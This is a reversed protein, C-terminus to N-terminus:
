DFYHIPALVNNRVNYDDSYLERHNIDNINGALEEQLYTVSFISVKYEGTLGCLANFRQVGSLPELEALYKQIMTADMITAKGDRNVDGFVKHSNCAENFTYNLAKYATDITKEDGGDLATKLDAIETQFEEWLSETWWYSDFPEALAIEYSEQAWRPAIYLEVSVLNDYAQQYDEDTANKNDIVKEAETLAAVLRMGSDYSYFLLPPQPVIYDIPFLRRYEGYKEELQLRISTESANASFMATALTGCLMAVCLVVSILKKM